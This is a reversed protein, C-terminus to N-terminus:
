YVAGAGFERTLAQRLAEIIRTQHEVQEPAGAIVSVTLRWQQRDDEVKWGAVIALARSPGDVPPGASYIKNAWLVFQAPIPESLGQARFVQTVVAVARDVEASRSAIHLRLSRETKPPDTWDGVTWGPLREKVARGIEEKIRDVDKEGAASITFRLGKRQAEYLVAVSQMPSTYTRGELLGPCPSQRCSLGRKAAVDDIERELRSVTVARDAETTGDARLYAYHLPKSEPYLMSAGFAFLCLGAVPWVWVTGVPLLRLRSARGCVWWVAPLALLDSYDVTRGVRWPAIDNVMDLVPQSLPSKWFVFLATIGVGVRRVHPPWLACCFVTVAALGAVDSLKGTLWNHFAAKLVFDNLLLVGVALLLLPSRLLDFRKLRTKSTDDM